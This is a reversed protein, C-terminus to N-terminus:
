IKELKIYITWSSGQRKEPDKDARKASLQLTMRQVKPEGGTDKKANAHEFVVDEDEKGPERGGGMFKGMRLEGHSYIVGSRHFSFM